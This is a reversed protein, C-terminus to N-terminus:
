LLNRRLRRQLGGARQDTWNPKSEGSEETKPKMM